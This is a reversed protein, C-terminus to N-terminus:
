IESKLDSWRTSLLAEPEHVDDILTAIPFMALLFTAPTVKFAWKSGYLGGYYSGIVTTLMTILLSILANDEAFICNAVGKRQGTAEQEEPVQSQKRIWWEEFGVDYSPIALGMLVSALVFREFGGYYRLISSIAAIFATICLLHAHGFFILFKGVFLSSFACTINFSSLALSFRISSLNDDLMRKYLFPGQLNFGFNYCYYAIFYNRLATALEKSLPRRSARYKAFKTVFGVGANFGFCAFMVYDTTSFDFGSFDM